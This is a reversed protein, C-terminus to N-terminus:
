HCCGKRAGYSARDWQEAMRGALELAVKSRTAARVTGKTSWCLTPFVWAVALCNCHVKALQQMGSVGARYKPLSRLSIERLFRGRLRSASGSEGENLRKGGKKVLYSFAPV